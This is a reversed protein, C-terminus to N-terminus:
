RSLAEMWLNHKGLVSRSIHQHGWTVQQLYQGSAVLLSALIGCKQQNLAATSFVTGLGHGGESEDM